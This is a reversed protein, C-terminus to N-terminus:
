WILSFQNGQIPFVMFELKWKLSWQFIKGFPSLLYGSNTQNKPIICWFQPIKM